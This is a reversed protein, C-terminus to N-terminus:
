HRGRVKDKKQTKGVINERKGQRDRIRQRSGEKEGWGVDRWSLREAKDGGRQRKM